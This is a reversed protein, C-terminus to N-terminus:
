VVVTITQAENDIKFSIALMIKGSAVQDGTKQKVSVLELRPEWKSLAEVVARTIKPSLEGNIPADILNPLDSGYEPLMLRERLTTTLIDGISQALHNAGSIQKGNWRNMGIM